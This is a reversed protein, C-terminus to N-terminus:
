SPCAVGKGRERAADCAVVCVSACGEMMTAMLGTRLRLTCRWAADLLAPHIGYDGGADAAEAPPAVQGYIVDGLRWAGTLGRFAPGYDLGGASLRAYLCGDRGAAYGGGTAMGGAGSPRCTALHQPPRIWCVWRMAPGAARDTAPEEMAATCRFRAVARGM